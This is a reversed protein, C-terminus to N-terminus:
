HMDIEPRVKDPMACNTIRQNVPLFADIETKPTWSVIHLPM